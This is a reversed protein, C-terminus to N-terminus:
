ESKGNDINEFVINLGSEIRIRSLNNLRIKLMELIVFASLACLTTFLAAGLGSTNLSSNPDAKAMFIMIMGFVTGIFGLPPLLHTIMTIKSLYNIQFLNEVLQRTADALFSSPYPNDMKEKRAAYFIKATLVILPDDTYSDEKAKKLLEFANINRLHRSTRYILLLGKFFLFGSATYVIIQVFGSILEPYLRLMQLIFNM